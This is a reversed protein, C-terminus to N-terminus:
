GISTLTHTHLGPDPAFQAHAGTISGCACLPIKASVRIHSQAAPVSLRALNPLLTRCISLAASICALAYWNVSQFAVVARATLGASLAVILQQDSLSSPGNSWSFNCLCLPLSPLPLSFLSSHSSSPHLVSATTSLTVSPLCRSAAISQTAQAISTEVPSILQLKICCDLSIPNASQTTALM